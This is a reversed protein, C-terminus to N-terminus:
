TGPDTELSALAEGTQGDELAPVPPWHRDLLALVLSVPSNATGRVTTPSM